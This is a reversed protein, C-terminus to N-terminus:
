SVISNNLAQSVGYPSMEQARIEDLCGYFCGSDNYPLKLMYISAVTGM